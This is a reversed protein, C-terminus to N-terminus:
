KTMNLVRITIQLIIMDINTSNKTDINTSGTGINISETMDINTIKIPEGMVPSDLYIFFMVFM